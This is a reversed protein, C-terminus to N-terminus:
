PRLLARAERIQAAHRSAHGAAVRMLEAGNLQGLLSHKAGLSFLELERACIAAITRDRMAHFQALAESLSVFKGTPMAVNPAQWDWDRTTTRATLWAEREEDRNPTDLVTAQELWGLYVGEVFVIHEMCELPSWRGPSPKRAADADSLASVSDAVERRSAELLEVIQTLVSSEM